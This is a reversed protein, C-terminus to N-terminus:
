GSTITTVPAPVDQSLTYSWHRWGPVSAHLRLALRTLYQCTDIEPTVGPPTLANAGYFGVALDTGQDNIGSACDAYIQPFVAELGDESGRALSAESDWWHARPTGWERALFSRDAAILELWDFEHGLEYYLTDRGAYPEIWIVPELGDWGESCGTTAGCMASADAASVDLTLRGRVTPVRMENAWRQWRGGIPQGAPNVLTVAQAPAALALAAFVGAPV